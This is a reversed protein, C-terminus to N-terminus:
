QVDTLDLGTAAAEREIFWTLCLDQVRQHLGKVTTGFIFNGLTMLIVIGSGVTMVSSLIPDSSWLGLGGALGFLLLTVVFGSAVRACGEARRHCRWFMREQLQNKNARESALEQQTQLHAAQEATLKEDEEKKIENTVRRLTETITEETLADEDGLTLHM